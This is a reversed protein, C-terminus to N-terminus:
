KKPLQEIKENKEYLLSKLVYEAMLVDEPTTIKFNNYNGQIIEVPKKSYLSYLMADDTIGITDFKEEQYFQQYALLLEQYGFGQPTQAAWLRNRDPTSTIELSKNVGKITDKVPVGIICAKDNLMSQIVNEIEDVSIFPRAGDHIMVYDTDNLSNLGAYVSDYREKGGEVIATVKQFGYLDVIDNQCYDLYERGTVIVINDVTSAAFALLSYYLIPKEQLVLFQKAVKSNMRKGQGAALIIATIKKSM